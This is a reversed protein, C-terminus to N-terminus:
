IEGSFTGPFIKRYAVTHAMLMIPITLYTGVCFLLMGAISVLIGVAWLGAVAGLNKWVGKASTKMAELGSMRKDVILHFSFMLLTHFCVMVVAFVSEVAFVGILFALLEDESMRAGMAVSALIPIYMIGVVLFIPVVFFLTVILGPGFFSFGKFLREIQPARGELLDLMCVNIGCIMAGLLVYMSAGGIMVGVISIAFMIWFYPKLIGWAEKYAGIPSFQGTEIQVLESM